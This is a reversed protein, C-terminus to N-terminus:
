LLLTHPLVGTYCCRYPNLADQLPGLNPSFYSWKTTNESRTQPREKRKGGPGADVFGGVGLGVGLQLFFCNSTGVACFGDCSTVPPFFPSM